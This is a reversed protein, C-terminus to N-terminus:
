CKKDSSTQFTGNYIPPAMFFIHEVKPPDKFKLCNKKLIEFLYSYNITKTNEILIYRITPPILSTFM